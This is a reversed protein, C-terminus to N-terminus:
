SLLMIMAIILFFKCLKVSVINTQHISMYVYINNKNLIYIYADLYNFIVLIFDHNAGAEVITLM